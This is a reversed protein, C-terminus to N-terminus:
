GVAEFGTIDVESDVWDEEVWLGEVEAGLDVGLELASGKKSVGKSAEKSGVVGREGAASEGDLLVGGEVVDEDGWAALAWADDVADQVCLAEFAADREADGVEGCGEFDEGLAVENEGGGRAEAM